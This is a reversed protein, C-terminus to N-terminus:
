SPVLELQNELSGRERGLRFSQLVRYLNHSIANMADHPWQVAAAQEFKGSNFTYENPEMSEDQEEQYVELLWNLLTEAREGADTAGSKQWSDIVATVLRANPPIAIVGSKYEEYMSYLAQEAKEASGPEKAQTISGIMTVYSFLNPQADSNGSKRMAKMRHFTENTKEVAQRNGSKAWGNMITTYSVVNPAIRDGARRSYYSEEMDKLIREARNVLGCKTWANM